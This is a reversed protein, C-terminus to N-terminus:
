KCPFNNTGDFIWCETTTGVKINETLTPSIWTVSLTEAPAIIDMNVRPPYASAFQLMCLLYTCFM